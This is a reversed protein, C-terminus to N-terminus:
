LQEEDMWRRWRDIEEQSRRNKRAVWWPASFTVVLAIVMAPFSIAMELGPASHGAVVRPFVFVFVVCLGAYAWRVLHSVLHELRLRRELFALADRPNGARGLRVGRQIAVYGISMAGCFAIITCGIMRVAGSRDAFAPISGALGIAVLLFFAVNALRHLRVERRARARVDPLPGTAGTWSSQWSDWEADTM